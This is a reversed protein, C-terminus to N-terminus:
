RDRMAREIDRKADRERQDHRKDYRRKGKGLGFEMKIRGKVLYFQLPIASLGKEEIRATIRDIERRNLLLKRPRRPAHNLRNAFPYENIHLDVLWLEGNRPEVHADAWSLRGERLSKVESGKLVLGAEWTDEIAYDHRARRNTALTRNNKDSQRSGM